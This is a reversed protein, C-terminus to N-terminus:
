NQQRFKSWWESMFEKPPMNGQENLRALLNAAKKLVELAEIRELYGDSGEAKESLILIDIYNVETLKGPKMAIENLRIKCKRAQKIKIMVDQQMKSLEEELKDIAGKARESHCKAEDYRAKLEKVIRTETLKFSEYRSSQLTHNEWPCKFQCVTCCAVSPGRRNIVICDYVETDLTKECPYHCTTLCNRCNLARQDVPVNVMQQKNLKVKYTFNENIKMEGEQEELLKEEVRLVRIKDLGTSIKDQLGQILAELHKRGILVDKTLQTSVPEAKGFEDFFRNFSEIDLNWTSGQTDCKAFLASNNFKFFGGIHPIEAAKVASIVPPDQGDAFTVMLFM